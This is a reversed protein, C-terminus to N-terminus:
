AARDESSFSAWCSTLRNWQSGAAKISDIVAPLAYFEQNSGKGEESESCEVGPYCVNAKLFLFSNYPTISELLQSIGPSLWLPM